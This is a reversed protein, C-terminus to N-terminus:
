VALVWHQQTVVEAEVQMHLLLGALQVQLALAAMVALQAVVELDLQGRVAAAALATMIVVLVALTAKDQYELALLHPVAVLGVVAALAAAELLLTM